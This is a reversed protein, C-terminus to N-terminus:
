RVLFAWELPYADGVKCVGNCVMALSGSKCITTRCVRGKGRLTRLMWIDQM